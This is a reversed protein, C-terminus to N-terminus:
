IDEQSHRKIQNDGKEEGMAVPSYNTVSVLECLNHRLIHAPAPPQL